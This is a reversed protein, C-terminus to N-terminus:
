PSGAARASLRGTGCRRTRTTRLSCRRGPSGRRRGPKRGSTGRLSKPASKALGDSPPPRLSNRTGGEGPRGPGRGAVAARGSARAAGRDGCGAGRDAHGAGDAAGAAARECRPPGADSDSIGPTEPVRRVSATPQGPDQFTLRWASGSTRRAGARRRRPLTLMPPRSWCAPGASRGPMEPHRAQARIRATM